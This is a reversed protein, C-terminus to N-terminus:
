CRGELISMANSGSTTSTGEREDVVLTKFDPDSDFDVFLIEFESENLDKVLYESSGSSGSGAVARRSPLIQDIDVRYIM